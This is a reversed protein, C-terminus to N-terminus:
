IQSFLLLFLRLRFVFGLNFMKLRFQLEEEGELELWDSNVIESRVSNSPSVINGKAEPIEVRNQCITQFNSREWKSKLESSRLFRRKLESSLMREKEADNRRFGCTKSRSRLLESEVELESSRTEMNGKVKETKRGTLIKVKGEM